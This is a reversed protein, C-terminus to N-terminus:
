GARFRWPHAAITAVRTAHDPATGGPLVPRLLLAMSLLAVGHVVFTLLLARELARDAATCAHPERMRAITARRTAPPFLTM